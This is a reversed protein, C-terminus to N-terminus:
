QVNYHFDLEGKHYGELDYIPEWRVASLLKM